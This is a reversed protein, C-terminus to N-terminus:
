RRSTRLQFQQVQTAGDSGQALGICIVAEGNKLRPDAKVTAKYRVGERPGISSIALNSSIHIHRNGTVEEVFPQVDRVAQDSLNRIEFIVQCEEGARLVQDNVGEVLVANRIELQPQAAAYYGNDDPYGQTSNDFEIRDDAYGQQDSNDFYGSHRRSNARQGEYRQGEYRQSEYRRRELQAAWEEYKQEQAKDIASGAAAGAVAGGVTGILTGWHYGSRGGTIGGIASGVVSGINAGAYAGTAENYSGCSSLTLLAGMMLVFLKKM